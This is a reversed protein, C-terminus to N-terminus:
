TRSRSRHFGRGGPCARGKQSGRSNAHSTVTYGVGEGATDSRPNPPRIRHFCAARLSWKGVSNRPTAGFHEHEPHPTRYRSWDYRRFQASAVPPSRVPSLARPRDGTLADLVDMLPRNFRRTLPGRPQRLVDSIRHLGLRSLGGLCEHSLRLTGLPLQAVAAAEEGAPVIRMHHGARALAAAADPVGAVVAQAAVGGHQLGNSVRALLAVEGGFLDAWGTVDLVLGDPPDVASIPTFRVAWLALRELFAIDADPEALRLALEPHMAQADALAQGAHLTTGPADVGMLLRRNGQTDWTAVPVGTLDPEKQRIRDTALHSLHLVLFRRSKVGLRLRNRV